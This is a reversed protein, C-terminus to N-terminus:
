ACAQVTLRHCSPAHGYQIKFARSFHSTDEFGCEFMVETVSQETRALLTAAHELRRQRLWRGPAMGYHAQFDRKFTSLSRHCLCALTEMSVRRRFNAEMIAPISPLDNVGVTHLYHSLMPNAEGTLLNAVLEHVKLRLLVANPRAAAAFYTQISDLFACLGADQVLRIAQPEPGAPAPPVAVEAALERVTMRVLSDPLFFLLLRFDEAFHQDLIYAGKKLYLTDGAKTVFSGNAAVWTKRGTLVHVVYDTDSWVEAVKERLPCTYHAFLLGGIQLLNNAPKNRVDAVLDLMAFAGCRRPRGDPILSLM